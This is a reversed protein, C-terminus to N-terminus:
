AMVDLCRELVRSARLPADVRIGRVFRLAKAVHRHARYLALRAPDLAGAAAEFAAVFAANLAQVPQVASREFEVEATFMAVDLEPDGVGSGDFDVLACGDDDILWQPPHPAGHISKLPRPVLQAHQRTFGEDLADILATSSARLRGKLELTHERVRELYWAADYRAPADFTVAQVSGLARGLQAAVALGHEGLLRPKAPVGPAAGQWLTWTTADFRQPPAVRFALEGRAAAAWLAQGTAHVAAGQADAFVKAFVTQGDSATGRLTCRLGPRYRVVQAGQLQRLPAALGPLAPDYPFARLRLWGLAPWRAAAVHEHAHSATHPAPEREFVHVQCFAQPAQGSEFLLRLYPACGPDFRAARRQWARDGRWWGRAAGIEDIQALLAAPEAALWALRQGYREFPGDSM